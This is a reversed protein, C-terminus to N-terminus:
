AEGLCEDDEVEGTGECEECVGTEDCVECPQEIEGANGCASCWYDVSSGSCDLCRVVIYGDGQCEACRQQGRCTECVCTQKKHVNM